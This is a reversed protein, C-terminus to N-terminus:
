DDYSFDYSVSSQASNSRQREELVRLRRDFNTMADKVSNINSGIIAMQSSLDNITKRDHEILSEMRQVSDDFKAMGQSQREIADVYAETIGNIPRAFDVGIIKFVIALALLTALSGLSWSPLAEILKDVFKGEQKLNEM